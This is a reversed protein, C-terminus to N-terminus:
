LPMNTIDKYAEVLKNRVQLMAQFSVSAKQAEVMVETLDVGAEGKEFSQKLGSAQMQTQNVREVSQKLVQAFSNQTETDTVADVPASARAQAALANMQGVLQNINMKEM